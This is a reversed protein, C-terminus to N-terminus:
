LVGAVQKITKVMKQQQPTGHEMEWIKSPPTNRVLEKCEAVLNDDIM